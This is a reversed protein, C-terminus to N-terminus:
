NEDTFIRQITAIEDPFYSALVANYAIMAISQQWALLSRDLQYHTSEVNPRWSFGEKRILGWNYIDDITHQLVVRSVRITVLHKGVQGVTARVGSKECRLIAALVESLLSLSNHRLRSM